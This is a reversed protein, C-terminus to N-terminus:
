FRRKLGALDCIADKVADSIALNDLRLLFKEDDTRKMLFSYNISKRIVSGQCMSMIRTAAQRLSPNTLVQYEKITIELM